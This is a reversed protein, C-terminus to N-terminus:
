HNNKLILRSYIKRGLYTISVINIKRFTIKRLLLIIDSGLYVVNSGLLILIIELPIEPLKVECWASSNVSQCLNINNKVRVLYYAAVLLTSILLQCKQWSLSSSQQDETLLGRINIKKVLIFYFVISALGVLFLWVEVYVLKTLLSMFYVGVEEQDHKSTNFLYLHYIRAYLM